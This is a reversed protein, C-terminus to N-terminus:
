GCTFQTIVGKDNVHVNLRTESYDMTVAMGPAIWRVREAGSLRAVETALEPTRKKGVLHVVHHSGCTTPQVQAEETPLTVIPVRPACSMLALAAVPLAALRIM